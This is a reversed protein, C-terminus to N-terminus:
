NIFNLEKLKAVMQKQYERHEINMPIKVLWTNNSHSLGENMASESKKQLTNFDLQPTDDFVEANYENWVLHDFFSNYERSMVLYNLRSAKECSLKEFSIADTDGRFLIFFATLKSKNPEVSGYFEEPSIRRRTFQKGRISHLRFHLKDLFGRKRFIARLTNPNGVANYAYVKPYALNPYIYGQRDILCIDDAVFACDNETCLDIELSTKGVGGTGGFVLTKGEQTRVASAHILSTDPNTYAYPVLIYEHLWHGIAERHSTYQINMWKRFLTMLFSSPKLAFIIRTVKGSEIYFRSIVPGMQYIFGDKTLKHISPNSSLVNSDDVKHVYEISVDPRENEVVSSYQALEEELIDSIFRDESAIQVNKGFILYTNKM